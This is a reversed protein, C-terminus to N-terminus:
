QQPQAIEQGIVWVATQVAPIFRQRPPAHDQAKWGVQV